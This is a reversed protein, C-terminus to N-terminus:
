AHGPQGPEDDSGEWYSRLVLLGPPPPEQAVHYGYRVLLAVGAIELPAAVLFVVRVSVVTALAGLALMTVITVASVVQAQLGFTAGQNALPVRRNVYTQVAAGSATAGFTVPIAIVGAALVARSVHVGAPALWDLPSLGALVPTVLPLLGFLVAGLVFVGLSALALWREGRAAILRPTAVTAVVFGLAGPAFIYVTNAPDAKLETRVYGPLLTTLADNLAAVTAGALIM